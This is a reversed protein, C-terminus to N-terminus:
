SEYELKLLPSKRIEGPSIGDADYGNFPDLGLAELARKDGKRAAPHLTMAGIGMRLARALYESCFMKFNERGQIKASTFALLGWWDYPQGDVTEHWNRIADMDMPVRVRLIALLGDGRVPYRGVGIGDRSALSYGGGDYMECHSYRSWTKIQILRSMFSRGGYLLVDGPMLHELALPM